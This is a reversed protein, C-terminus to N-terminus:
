QDTLIRLVYWDARPYVPLLSGNTFQSDHVVGDLIAIWHGYKAGTERILIAARDPWPALDSLRCDHKMVPWRRGTIIEILKATQQTSCGRDLSAPHHNKATAYDVGAVMAAVAITCDNESRQIVHGVIHKSRLLAAIISSRSEGREVSAIEDLARLIDRPVSISITDSGEVTEKPRGAGPRCGGRQNPKM